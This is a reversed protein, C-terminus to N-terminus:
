CSLTTNMKTDNKNQFCIVSATTLLPPETIADKAESAFFLILQPTALPLMM